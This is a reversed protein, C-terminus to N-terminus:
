GNIYVREVRRNIGTMVEYPITQLLTAFDKMTQHQGIIEVVDNVDCQVETVDVMTMDMCVNGVVKCLQGNIFVQGKGNSLDRRFGDAYGLRITAITTPKDAIFRRNYGVSEGKKLEKIQSVTTSWRISPLLNSDNGAYGFIGIGLRVMDFSADQAYRLLGESNLLHFLVEDSYQLTEEIYSKNHKFRQIQERSFVDDENDADALHSFVSKLRVAEHSNLFAIIAELESSAVGLRQMGTEVKLHIPYGTYGTSDLFSVFRKLQDFAYITPELQYQVVDEFSNEETNMVMIPLEIGNKRLTSGEDTYAVGFYDVGNEQLFHPIKVDGTGYSSAKVMVLTRTGAPCLSQFYRLNSVIAKLDFEVWTEHKRQKFRKVLTKLNSRFSGKFLIAANSLELLEFPLNDNEIIFVKDPGFRDALKLVESKKAEDTYSLDLVVVKKTREKSAMLYEMAQELADIDINYADNIILNGNIGEFVERRGSLSPLMSIREKLVAPSIGLFEAAKLCLARSEPFNMREIGYSKWEAVSTEIAEIKRRRFASHYAQDIFTFNANKFLKLHENLHHEESDFNSAYHKGIGTFVGMTPAIMEELRFMEGPHSIDAEVIALDHNENLELLTLAVGLQSNYSMPTRAVRFDDKILFYLWEKITTKGLSGTIAIVPIAFQERHKQALQQLARLANEVLIVCADQPLDIAQQVVFCRVGKKYARECYDHGSKHKGSLAFFVAPHDSTIKRTDYVIVDIVGETQNLFEGDILNCLRSHSLQLKL